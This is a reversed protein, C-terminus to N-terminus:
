AADLYREVKEKMKPKPAGPFLILDDPGSRSSCGGPGAEMKEKEDDEPCKFNLLENILVSQLPQRLTKMKVEMERRNFISLLGKSGFM